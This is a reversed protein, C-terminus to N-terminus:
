STKLTDSDCVATPTTIVSVEARLGRSVSMTMLMSVGPAPEAVHSSSICHFGRKNLRGKGGDWQPGTLTDQNSLNGHVLGIYIVYTIFLSPRMEIPPQAAM